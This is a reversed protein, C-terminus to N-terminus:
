PPETAKHTPSKTSYIRVDVGVELILDTWNLKHPRRTIRAITLTWVPFNYLSNNVSLCHSQALEVDLPHRPTTYDSARVSCTFVCVSHSACVCVVCVCATHSVHSIQPDVM